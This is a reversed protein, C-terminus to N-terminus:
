GALSLILSKSIHVCQTSSPGVSGLNVKITSVHSKLKFLTLVLPLLSPLCLSSDMAVHPEAQQQGTM